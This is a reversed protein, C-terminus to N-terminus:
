VEMTVGTVCCVTVMTIQVAKDTDWKWQLVLLRFCLVTVMTIQLAKDTDSKWQLVLLGRHVITNANDPELELAKEFQKDAKDFQGLDCLSQGYLMFADSCRPFRQIAAEFSKQAQELGLPSGLTMAKRHEAFAKQVYSTPFHPSLIISKQFDLMAEELREMLLLQQGRHHYIDSNQPHLDEATTFCDMAETQRDKQMLLSGKKILANAGVPPRVTDLTLLSELDALGQQGQGSLIYFTARLLLAEALVPSDATEVEETCLPIVEDYRGSELADKARDLASPKELLVADGNEDSNEEGNGSAEEAKVKVDGQGEQHPSGVKGVNDIKLVPDNAFGALYNRVFFKSPLSPQKNQYADKARARGLEKLIRDALQLSGQNQFGELICVTTIDELADRFQQLSEFAKARRTLAKVYRPNLELAMSCDAVVQQYNKLNEYAAARNQYFTSIDQKHETPCTRVAETYCEIAQEYMGGKFYKNGKNKSAQAQDKPTQPVEPESKGGASKGDKSGNDETQSKGQRRKLYWIGAVGLAIPAGVCLAIQWKSWGETVDRLSWHTAM